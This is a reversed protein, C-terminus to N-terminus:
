KTGRVIINIEGAHKHLEADLTAYRVQGKGDIIVYGPGIEGTRSILGYQKALARDTSKILQADIEKPLICDECFVIVAPLSKLKLGELGPAPQDLNLLALRQLGLSGTNQPPQIYILYQLTAVTIVFGVFIILLWRRKSDTM